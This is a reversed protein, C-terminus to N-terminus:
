PYAIRAQPIRIQGACAAGDPDQWPLRWARGLVMSPTTPTLSCAAAAPEFGAQGQVPAYVTVGSFLPDRPPAASQARALAPVALWAALVAGALIAGAAQPRATM